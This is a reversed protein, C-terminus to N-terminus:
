PSARSAVWCCPPPPATLKPARWDRMVVVARNGDATPVADHFRRACGPGVILAIGSAAKALTQPTFRRRERFGVRKLDECHTFNVFWSRVGEEGGGGGGHREGRGGPLTREVM